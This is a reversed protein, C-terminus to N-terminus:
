AVNRGVPSLSNENFSQFQSRSMIVYEILKRLYKKSPSKSLNGIVEFDINM